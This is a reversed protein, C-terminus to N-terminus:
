FSRSIRFDVRLDSSKTELTNAAAQTANLKDSYRIYTTDVGFELGKVPTWKTVQGIAYANYNWATGAALTSNNAYRVEGYSGGVTTSVTPSWNHSLNAIVNWATQDHGDVYDYNKAGIGFRQSSRAMGSFAIANQDYNVQFGIFDGAALTPLNIKTYAGLGYGTTNKATSSVDVSANHYAANLGAEGWGQKVALQGVFDPSRGGNFTATTGKRNQTSDEVSLTASFGGGFSATYQLATVAWDPNFMDHNYGSEIHNFLTEVKGATLGAFTIYALDIYAAANGDYSNSAGYDAEYGIHSTLDGYATKTVTDLDIETDISIDFVNDARHASTDTKINHGFSDVEVYGSIKLCTDSGPIYFYGAGAADCIKVYQAPAAKKSPLDAAQASAAAVLVAASGLLLSKTFTM